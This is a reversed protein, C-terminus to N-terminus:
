HKILILLTIVISITLNNNSQSDAQYKCKSVGGPPPEFTPALTNILKGECM